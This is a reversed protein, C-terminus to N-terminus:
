RLQNKKFMNIIKEYNTGSLRIMKSTSISKNCRSCIEAVALWKQFENAHSPHRCHPCIVVQRSPEIPFEYCFICRFDDQTLHQGAPRLSAMIASTLKQAPQRSVSIAPAVQVDTHSSRQVRASQNPQISRPRSPTSSSEWSFYPRSQDSSTTPRRKRSPSLVVRRFPVLVVKMIYYNIFLFLSLIVSIVGILEGVGTEWWIFLYCIILLSNGWILFANPFRRRFIFISSYRGSYFRRLFILTLGSTPLIFLVGFLNLFLLFGEMGIFNLDITLEILDIQFFPEGSISAFAAIGSGLFALLTPISIFIASALPANYSRYYRWEDIWKISLITFLTLYLFTLAIDQSQGFIFTIITFTLGITLISLYVNRQVM